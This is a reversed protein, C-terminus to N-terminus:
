MNVDIMNAGGEVQDAAVSTAAETQEEKILRAFRRSGTVNTREGIMLSGADEGVVLPKSGSYTSYRPIDPISRPKYGQVKEAVKAIFAPSTGCCGGVINVWGEKAFSEILDSFENPNSDFGGMGDPMGANPYCSIHCRAQENMTELYPRMQKPGLACNLGISMMPFHELAILFAELTQGTLTVGGSFITGSVMVPVRAGREEFVRDIAYLCSKMNLTDFSTEPLLLDAGGDLLGRVQEAYSDAMQDFKVPRYGPQAANFSLQVKTPGISGAVYRPKDPNTKTIADAARKAVTAAAKNIEYTLDALEFEEMSIVNANFSDTEIIDAGAELYQRHIGEIMEPQTLVLVDNANKLDVPHNKFREGRYDAEQPKQDMILSGMAGDIVLIRETLLQEISPKEPM